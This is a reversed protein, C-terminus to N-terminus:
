EFVGLTTACWGGVVVFVIVVVLEGRRVLLKLQLVLGGEM